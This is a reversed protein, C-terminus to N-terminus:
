TPRGLIIWFIELVLYAVLVLLYPNGSLRRRKDFAILALLSADILAFVGDPVFIASRRV